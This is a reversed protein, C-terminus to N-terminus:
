DLTLAQWGGTAVTGDENQVAVLYRNWTVPDFQTPLPPEANPEFFTPVVDPAFPGGLLLAYTVTPDAELTTEWIQRGDQTRETTPFLETSIIQINEDGFYPPPTDPQAPVGLLLRAGIRIDNGAVRFRRPAEHRFETLGFQPAKHILAHQYIRITKLSIPEPALPGPLGGTWHFDLPGTGKPWNRTLQPVPRWQTAPRMPELTINSPTPGTQPTKNGSPNAVRREAGAETAQLIIRDNGFVVMDRMQTQSILNNTGEERWAPPDVTVDYWYHTEVLSSRVHAIAGANGEEVNQQFLAFANDAIFSPALFIDLTIAKGVVPATGWDFERIFRIMDFTATIDGFLGNFGIFVFQNLSLQQAGTHLLGFESTRMDSLSLAGIENRGERQFVGRTAATEVPQGLIETIRNNSSEPLAHCQVCSRGGLRGNPFPFTHFLKLGRLSGTGDDLDLDGINGTFRRFLDQEPNGPYMITNVFSEYQVMETPTIGIPDDPDPGINPKGQLNVFAENFQRFNDKDGRWHYPANTFLYQTEALDVPHDVLGQLTQTVMIGKDTSFEDPVQGPVGDIFHAPIPKLPGGGPTGLDWGLGDTTGDTHCSSCSVFGHGSHDASYLFERGVHVEPPTPDQQLSFHDTIAETQPNIVSISKNLANYCFLKLTPDEPTRRKMKLARPGTRSHDPSANPMQIYTSPWTAPDTNIARLVEIRDSSFGCVFIKQVPQTPAGAPEIDTGNLIELDTPASMAVGFGEVNGAADRNLDRKQLSWSPEGLNEIVYLESRVFGTPLDRLESEGVIENRAMAGVAYYRGDPGPKMNWNTSGMGAIAEEHLNLLSISWVDFDYESSNGGRQGMAILKDDHALIRRPNKLAIPAQPDFLSMSLTIRLGALDGLPALSFASHWAMSSSGNCSVFLVTGDESIAIDTPEDGTIDTRELTAVPPGDGSQTLLVASITDGLFNATYFASLTPHWKVTVPRLGVPVRQVFALTRANYIEVSNDATNCALLYTEGGVRALDMPNVPMVEYNVAEGQSTAPNPLAILGGLALVSTFVRARIARRM